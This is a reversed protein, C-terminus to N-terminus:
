RTGRDHSKLELILDDALKVNHSEDKINYFKRLADQEIVKKTALWKDLLVDIKANLEGYESM